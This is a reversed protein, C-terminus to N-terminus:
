QEGMYIEQVQSNMKVKAPAGYAIVRGFHLVTVRQAIEFSIDIDHDIILVTIDRPLASIMSVFTKAEEPSLGSTPEDLLLIHRNQSLTLIIELRRQEGYSLDSVLVDARDQMGWEELIAKARGTLQRYSSLSRLLDFKIAVLAELALVVNQLVTLKLFLNSIQFTRGIGMAARRHPPLKTIDRGFAFIAGKSPTLTGSILNFLTTKGAGNPGIIALREGKDVSFTVENLAQLGGFSKSLNEVRLAEM